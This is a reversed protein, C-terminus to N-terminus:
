NSSSSRRPSTADLISWDTAKGFSLWTVWGVQFQLMVQLPVLDLLVPMGLPSPSSVPTEYTLSETEVDRVCSYCENILAIAAEHAIFGHHAVQESAEIEWFNTDYKQCVTAMQKKFARFKNRLDKFESQVIAEQALKQHLLKGM